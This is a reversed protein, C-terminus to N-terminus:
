PLYKKEDSRVLKKVYDGMRGRVIREPFGLRELKEEKGPVPLQLYRIKDPLSAPACAAIDERFQRIKGKAAPEDLTPVYVRECMDLVRYVEDVQSGVDLIVGEYAQEGALRTLFACWVQASITRLDGAHFAPPIYELREFTRLMGDMQYLLAGPAELTHYYLLDTIDEQGDMDLLGSFGSYEEMNVYLMHAHFSLIEGLTIAFSTKGCRGVPSYVGILRTGAQGWHVSEAVISPNQLEKKHFPEQRLGDTDAKRRRTGAPSVTERAPAFATEERSSGIFQRYMATVQAALKEASQYKQVGDHEGEDPMSRETLQLALIGPQKEWARVTDGAYLSESILLIGRGATKLLQLASDADASAQAFLGRNRDANIYKALMAAYGTDTDCIVLLPTEM